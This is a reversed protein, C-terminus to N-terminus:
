VTCRTDSLPRVASQSEERPALINKMAVPPSPRTRITTTNMMKAVADLSVEALIRGGSIHPNKPRSM